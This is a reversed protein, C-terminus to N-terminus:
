LDLGIRKEVNEVAAAKLAFEVARKRVCLAVLGLRTENEEIEIIKLRDVVAITMERAVGDQFGDSGIDVTLNTLRIDDASKSSILEDQQQPVRRASANM